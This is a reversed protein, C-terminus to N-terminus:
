VTLIVLRIGKELTPETPSGLKSFKEVIQADIAQLITSQNWMREFSNINNAYLRARRVNTCAIKQDHLSVPWSLIDRSQVKKSFQIKFSSFFALIFM